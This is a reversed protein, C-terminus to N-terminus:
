PRVESVKVVGKLRRAQHVHLDCAFVRGRGEAWVVVFRAPRKCWSCDKMAMGAERLKEFLSLAAEVTPLDWGALWLLFRGEAPSLGIGEAARSLYRRHLETVHAVAAAIDGPRVRTDAM